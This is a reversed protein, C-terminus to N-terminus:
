ANIILQFGKREGLSKVTWISHNALRTALEGRVKEINGKRTLLEKVYVDVIITNTTTKNYILPITTKLTALAAMALDMPAPIPVSTVSEDDCVGMPDDNMFIIHCIEGEHRASRVLWNDAAKLSKMLRETMMDHFDEPMESSEEFLMEYKKNHWQISYAEEKMDQIRDTIVPFHKYIDYDTKLSPMIWDWDAPLSEMYSYGYSNFGKSDLNFEKVLIRLVEKESLNQELIVLLQAMENSTMTDLIREFREVPLASTM